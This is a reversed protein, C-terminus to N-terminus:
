KDKSVREKKEFDECGNEIDEELMKLRSEVNRVKSETRDWETTKIGIEQELNLKKQAGQERSHELDQVLM